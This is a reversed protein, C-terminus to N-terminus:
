DSWNTGRYDELMAIVPLAVLLFLVAVPWGKYAVVLLLYTIGNGM